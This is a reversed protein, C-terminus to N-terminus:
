ITQDLTEDKYCRVYDPEGGISKIDSLRINQIFDADSRIDFITGVRHGITANREEYMEYTDSVHISKNDSEGWQEYLQQTDTERVTFPINIVQGKEAAEFLLSVVSHVKVTDSPADIKATKEPGESQITFFVEAIGFALLIFLLLGVKKIM